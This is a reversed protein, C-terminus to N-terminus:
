RREKQMPVTPLLHLTLGVCEIGPNHREANSQQASNGDHRCQSRRDAAQERAGVSLPLFLLSSCPCEVKKFCNLIDGKERESHGRKRKRIMNQRCNEAVATWDPGSVALYGSWM